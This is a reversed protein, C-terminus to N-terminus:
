LESLIFGEEEVTDILEYSLNNVMCRLDSDAEGFDEQWEGWHM